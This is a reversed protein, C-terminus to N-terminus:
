RDMANLKHTVSVWEKLGDTVPVFLPKNKQKGKRLYGMQTVGNRRRSVLKLKRHDEGRIYIKNNVCVYHAPIHQLTGQRKLEKLHKSLAGSSMETKSLLEDWTMTRKKGKEYFAAVITIMTRLAQKQKETLVGEVNVVPTRSM